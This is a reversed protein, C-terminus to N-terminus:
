YLDVRSYVRPHKSQMVRLILCSNPKRLPFNQFYITLCHSIKIGTLHGKKPALSGSSTKWVETLMRKM